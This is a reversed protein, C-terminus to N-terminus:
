LRQTVVQIDTQSNCDTYDKSCNQVTNVVSISDIGIIEFPNVSGKKLGKVVQPWWLLISIFLRNYTM